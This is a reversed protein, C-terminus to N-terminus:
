AMVKYACDEPWTWAFGELKPYRITCNKFRSDDRLAGSAFLGELVTSVLIVLEPSEDLNVQAKRLQTMICDKIQAEGQPFTVIPTGVPNAGFGTIRRSTCNLTVVTTTM